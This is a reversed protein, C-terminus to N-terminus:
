RLIPFNLYANSCPLKTFFSLNVGFQAFYCFGKFSSMGRVQNTWAWPCFRSSADSLCETAETKKERELEKKKRIIAWSVSSLKPSWWKDLETESSLKTYKSILIKLHFKPLHVGYYSFKFKGGKEWM